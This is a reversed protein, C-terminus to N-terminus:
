TYWKELVSHVRFTLNGRRHDTDQDVYHLLFDFGKEKDLKMQEKKGKNDGNKRASSFCIIARKISQFLLM